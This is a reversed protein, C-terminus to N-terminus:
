SHTAVIRLTSGKFEDTAQIPDIAPMAYQSMESYESDLGDTASVRYLELVPSATFKDSFLAM